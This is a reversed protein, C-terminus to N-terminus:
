SFIADSKVGEQKFPYKNEADDFSLFAPLFPRLAFFTSTAKIQVFNIQSYLMEKTKKQVGSCPKWFPRLPPM